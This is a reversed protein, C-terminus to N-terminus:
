ETLRWGHLLWELVLLALAVAALVVWLPRRTPDPLPDGTVGAAPTLDSEAADQFSVACFGTEAGARFRYFAPTATRTCTFGRGTVPVTFREEGAAASALRSVAVATVEEPLAHLSQVPEGVRRREAVLRREVPGLWRLANRLLVPFAVRFVADSDEFRFGAHVLRRGPLDFAALLVGRRTELLPVGTRTLQFPSAQGILMGHYSVFRNV